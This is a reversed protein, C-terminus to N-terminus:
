ELLFQGLLIGLRPEAFYLSAYFWTRSLARCVTSNEFSVRVGDVAAFGYGPSQRSTGLLNGDVPM